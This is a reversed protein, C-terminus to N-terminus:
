DLNLHRLAPVNGWADCPEDPLLAGSGSGIAYNLKKLANDEVIRASSEPCGSCNLKPCAWCPVRQKQECM